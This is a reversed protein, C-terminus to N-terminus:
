QERLYNMVAHLLHRQERAEPPPTPGTYTAHLRFPTPQRYETIAHAIFGAIRAVARLTVNAASGLGLDDPRADLSPLEAALGATVAAYLDAGASAALRTVIVSPTVGHEASVGLATELHRVRERSPDEKTLRPWLRAAFSVSATDSGLLPLSEVVTALLNRATRVVADPARDDRRPDATRAAAIIVCLRDIGPTTKTLARQARTAAQLCAADARWPKAGNWRGTWLFEAVAEFRHKAAADAADVGRYWVRGTDRDHLSVPTPVVIDTPALRSHHTRRTLREIDAPDFLSRRGDPARHRTVLGRSVYAYLTAPKIGLRAAAQGATLWTKEQPIAGVVINIEDINVSATL